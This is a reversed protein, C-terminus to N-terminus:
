PEVEEIVVRRRGACRALEFVNGVEADPAVAALIAGSEWDRVILARRRPRERREDPDLAGALARDAEREAADTAHTPVITTV